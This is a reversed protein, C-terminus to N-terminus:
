FTFGELIGYDKLLGDLEYRTEFGLLCRLEPKKLHGGKYEELALAELARRSLDGEAQRLRIAIDDPIYVTLEMLRTGM